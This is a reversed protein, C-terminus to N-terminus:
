VYMCMVYGDRLWVFVCMCAGASVSVSVSVSVCVCVDVCVCVGELIQSIKIYYIHLCM